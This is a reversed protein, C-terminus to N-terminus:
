ANNSAKTLKEDLFDRLYDLICIKQFKALNGIMLSLYLGGHEKCDQLNWLINGLGEVHLRLWIRKQTYPMMM